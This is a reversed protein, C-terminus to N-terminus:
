VAPPASEGPRKELWQDVLEALYPIRVDAGGLAQIAAIISYVGLVAPVMVLGLAWITWLLAAVGLLILGVLIVVLVASIATFIALAIAGGLLWVFFVGATAVLQLAFAQMAQFAVFDSRDRWSAYILLPVFIFLLGGIGGSGLSVLIPFLGCLYAVAAWNREQQSPGAQGQSKVPAKEIVESTNM